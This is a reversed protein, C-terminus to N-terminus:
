PSLSSADLPKWAVARGRMGCSGCATGRSSSTSTWGGTEKGSAVPEDVSRSHHALKSPDIRADDATRTFRGSRCGRGGIGDLISAKQFSVRTRDLRFTGSQRTRQIRPEVSGPSRRLLGSPGPGRPGRRNIGLISPMSPHKEPVFGFPHLSRRPPSGFPRDLDVCFIDINADPGRPEHRDSTPGVAEVNSSSPILAFCIRGFHVRRGASRPHEQCSPATSMRRCRFRRQSLPKHM